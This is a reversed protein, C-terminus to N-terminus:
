AGNEITGGRTGANTHVVILVGLRVAAEQVDRLQTEASSSNPNVLVALAPAVADCRSEVLSSPNGKVRGKIACRVSFQGM